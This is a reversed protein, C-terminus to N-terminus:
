RTIQFQRSVAVFQGGDQVSAHIVLTGGRKAREVVKKLEASISGRSTASVIRNEKQFVFELEDIFRNDGEPGRVYVRKSLNDLLEKKSAQGSRLSGWSITFREAKDRNKARLYFQIPLNMRTKVPQGNQLAPTWPPMQRVVNLAAEGCGGGIDTLISPNQVEGIEDIIFSVFVTGEIGKNRAEAPYVLQQSIFRVLELDSCERKRGDNKNFSRCGSFYPMEDAVTFVTDDPFAPYNGQASLVHCCLLALITTCLERVAKNKILM